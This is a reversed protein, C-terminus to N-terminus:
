DQRSSADIWATTAEATREAILAAARSIAEEVDVEDTCLGRVAWLGMAEIQAPSMHVSGAICIVPKGFYRARRLVEAVVKGQATQADLAGEGTLVLDATEIASDLGLLDALYESGRQRTAGLVAGLAFGLGGAAGMGPAGTACRLKRSAEIHHAIHGLRADMETIDSATLGKQPGFVATAGDPGTLPNDVDTLCILEIQGLRADLQSFDVRDLTKLGDPTPVLSKGDMDLFRVGLASLMGTGADNTGSGGLGILIKQAGLDLTHRLLEGVGHTDFRWPDRQQPAVLNLGCASAVEIVAMKQTPIWGWSAEVTAGDPGHVKVSRWEGDLARTIREATGEGGDAMPICVIRAGPAVVRVGQAMADAVAPSSLSGKFSDPCILVQLGM